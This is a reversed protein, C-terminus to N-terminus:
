RQQARGPPRSSTWRRCPRERADAGRDTSWFSPDALRGPRDARVYVQYLAHGDAGTSVLSARLEYDSTRPSGDLFEAFESWLLLGPLEEWGM